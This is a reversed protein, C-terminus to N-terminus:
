VDKDQEPVETAKRSKKETEGRAAQVGVAGAVIMLVTGGLIRGYGGLSMGGQDGQDIATMVALAALAVLGAALFAVSVARKFRGSLGVAAASVTAVTALAALIASLVWGNQLNDQIFGAGILTTWASGFLAVLLVGINM